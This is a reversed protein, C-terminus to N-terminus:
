SPQLAAPLVDADLAGEPAPPRRVRLEISGHSAGREVAAPLGGLDALLERPLRAIRVAARRGNRKAHYMGADAVALAEEFALPARDGDLPFSAYGISASVSVVRQQFAIPAAALSQLLRDVLADGDFPSSLIAVVLEEGGWRAVLDGERVCSQVRAAVDRLVADGGAHGLTDNINKFHDIDILLLTGAFADYRNRGRLGLLLGDRNLLGTLPDRESRSRLADNALALRRNRARLWPIAASVAVLLALAVAGFGAWRRVEDSRQQQLRAAAEAQRGRMTRSFAGDGAALLAPEEHGFLQVADDMAGAAVLASGLKDIDNGRDAPRLRTDLSALLPGLRRRAEDIRGLRLLAVIEDIHLLDLMGQEHWREAQPLSAEIRQLAKDAHGQRLDIQVLGDALNMIRRAHGAAQAIQLAEQLKLLSAALDGREQLVSAGFIKVFERASADGSHVAQADARQLLRDCLATNGEVQALEASIAIARAGLDPRAAREAIGRAAQLYIGASGRTAKDSLALGAFMNAWFWDSSSCSTSNITDGADCFPAYADVAAVLHQASRATEETVLELDGLVLLADAHAIPGATGALAELRAASARAEDRLGNDAAVLGVGVEVIRDAEPSSGRRAQLQRLQALAEQPSEYGSDILRDVTAQLTRTEGASASTGAAVLVALAAVSARHWRRQRPRTSRCHM